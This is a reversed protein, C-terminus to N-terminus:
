LTGKVKLYLKRLIFYSVWLFKPIKIVKVNSDTIHPKDTDFLYVKIPKGNASVLRTIRVNRTPTRGLKWYNDFNGLEIRGSMICDSIDVGDISGKATINGLVTLNVLFYNSGRVMDISDEKGAPITINRVTVNNCNSFKLVDHYSNPSDPATFSPIVLNDQNAYSEYNIDNTSSM